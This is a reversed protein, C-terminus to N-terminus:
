AGGLGTRSCRRNAQWGLLTGGTSTGSCGSGQRLSHAPEEQERDTPERTSITANANDIPVDILENLLTESNHADFAVDRQLLLSIENDTLLRPKPM